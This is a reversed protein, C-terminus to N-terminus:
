IDHCRDVELTHSRYGCSDLHTMRRAGSTWTQIYNNSPNLPQQTSLYLISFFLVRIQNRSPASFFVLRTAIGPNGRYGGAACKTTSEVIRTIPLHPGAPICLATQACNVHALFQSSHGKQPAAPEWRVCIDGPCLGVERGLPMKIWGAM